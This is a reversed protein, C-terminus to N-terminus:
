NSRAPTQCNPYFANAVLKSSQGRTVDASVRFYPKNTPPQCPEGEAGCGYGSLINRVYLREVFQHFTSGPPVDEFTADTYTEQYEAANSVIKATQGRTVKAQTRFYPKNAPAVCPENPGGCPYGSIVSRFYLREIYLYFTAGVPVDEFTATTYDEGYGAANSVIKSLQGRTVDFGPRFYPYNNPEVCPEGDGGCGYGSVIQRCALCHVFDYFTSGPVVDAFQLACSTPVGEPVKTPTGTNLAM